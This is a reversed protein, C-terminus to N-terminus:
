GRRNLKPYCGHQVRFEKLLKSKYGVNTLGDPPNVCWYITITRGQDELDALDKRLNKAHEDVRTRYDALRNSETGSRDLHSGLHDAKGFYVIDSREKGAPILIDIVLMYAVSIDPTEKSSEMATNFGMKDKFYGTLDASILLWLLL